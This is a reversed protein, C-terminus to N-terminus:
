VFHCVTHFIVISKPNSVLLLTGRMFLSKSPSFRKLSTSSVSMELQMFRSNISSGTYHYANSHMNPNSNAIKTNPYLVYESIKINRIPNMYKYKFFCYIQILYYHTHQLASCYLILWCSFLSNVLSCLMLYEYVECFCGEFFITDELLISLHPSILSSVM